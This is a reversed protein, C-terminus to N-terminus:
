AGGASTAAGRTRGVASRRAIEKGLEAPALAGDALGANVVAGPMSWVVASVEDQALVFGGQRRVRRAGELGDRGMGTLVVALVRSGYAEALSRFLVDVAPRCSNEPPGDHVVVRMGGAPERRVALHRGGPAIWVHGPVLPEGGAAEAVALPCAGALREALQRTFVAPMHQVVLVPLPFDDPLQALLSQLANPGGTSGGIAVVDVPGPPRNATGGAPWRRVSQAALQRRHHVAALIKPVLQERVERVAQDHGTSAAPKTVYDSAGLSLAQLTVAAGRETVASFMIVPLGPHEARLAALTQIGDLVPMEVDLVVADPRLTRVRELAARGDAALGVIRLDPHDALVLTLLRRAVASDDAILVGVRPAAEATV